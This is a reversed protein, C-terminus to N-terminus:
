PCRALTCGQTATSVARALDALEDLSFVPGDRTITPTPRPEGGVLVPPAQITFNDAELLVGSGDARQIAVVITQVDGAEVLGRRYLTDGNPLRQRKCSGGQVFDRDLCLNTRITSGAPSVVMLLRGPGAGDDATGDLQAAGATVDSTLDLTMGGTGARVAALLQDLLGGHTAPV